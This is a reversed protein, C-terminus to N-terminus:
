PHGYFQRISLLAPEHLTVSFQNGQYNQPVNKICHSFPLIQTDMSSVYLATTYGTDAFNSIYATKVATWTVACNHCTCPCM